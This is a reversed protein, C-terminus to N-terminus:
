HPPTTRSEILATERRRGVGRNKEGRIIGVASWHKHLTLTSHSISFKADACIDGRPNHM